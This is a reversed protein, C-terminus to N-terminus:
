MLFTSSGSPFVICSQSAQCDLLSFGQSVTGRYASRFFPNSLCRAEKEHSILDSLWLGRNWMKTSHALKWMTAWKQRKKQLASVKDGTRQNWINMMDLYTSVAKEERLSTSRLWVAAVIQQEKLYAGFWVPAQVTEVRAQSFSHTTSYGLHSFNKEYCLCKPSSTDSASFNLFWKKLRQSTKANMKNKFYATNKGIM